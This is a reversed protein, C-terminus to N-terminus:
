RIQPFLNRKLNRGLQAMRLRRCGEVGPNRAERSRCEGRQEYKSYYLFRGEPSEVPSIGGNQTLQSPSGGQACKGASSRSMAVSQLLTCGIEMERGVRRCITQARFRLCWTRSLAQYKSSTSKAESTPIFNSRSSHGNPSWRARGAVGHLSTIRECNTGNVDCTWIDWFGLRNSELAIEKWGSVTGPCRTARGRFWRQHHDKTTNQM